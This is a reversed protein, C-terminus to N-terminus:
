EVRFLLDPDDLLRDRGDDRLHLVRELLRFRRDHQRGTRVAVVSTRSLRAVTRRLPRTGVNRQADITPTVDSM